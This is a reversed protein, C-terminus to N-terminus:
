PRSVARPLGPPPATLARPRRRPDAKKAFAVGPTLPRRRGRRGARASEGCAAADVRRRCRRRRARTTCSCGIPEAWPGATMAALLYLVSSTFVVVQPAGAVITATWSHGALHLAVSVVIQVMVFLYLWRGRKQTPAGRRYRRTQSTALFLLMLADALRALGLPWPPLAGRQRLHVLLLVGGGVAASGLLSSLFVQGLTGGGMCQAFPLCRGAVHNRWTIRQVATTRLVFCGALALAAM